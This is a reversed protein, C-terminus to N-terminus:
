QKEKVIKQLEPAMMYTANVYHRLDDLERDHSVLTVVLVVNVALMVACASVAIWVGVGGANLTITSQNGTNAPRMAEALAAVARELRAIKEDDM